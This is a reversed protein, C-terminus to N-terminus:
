RSGRKSETATAADRLVRLPHTVVRNNQTSACAITLHEDLRRALLFVYPLSRRLPTCFDMSHQSVGLTGKYICPRIGLSSTVDAAENM